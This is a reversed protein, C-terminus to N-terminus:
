CLLGYVKEFFIDKKLNSCTYFISFTLLFYSRIPVHWHIHTARVCLCRFYTTRVNSLFTVVKQQPRARFCALAIYHMYLIYLMTPRYDVSLQKSSFVATSCHLIKLFCICKCLFLLWMFLMQKVM